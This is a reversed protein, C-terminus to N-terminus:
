NQQRVWAALDEPTKIRNTIIGDMLARTRVSELRDDIRTGNRQKALKVIYAPRDDFRVGDSAVQEESTWEPFHSWTIHVRWSHDGMVVLTTDEWDGSQELEQRVHALYLDCLVLNDLYSSRAPVFNHTHRNYIAGPHPIPMHLLMFDVAPDALLKDGAAMLDNYDKQHFATAIHVSNHERILGLRESYFSLNQLLPQETNWAISQEPFFGGPLNFHNTWFCRDLVDPIIRCYPNFWGAIATSYGGTLADQFVTNHPNLQVWKNTSVDHLELPWGAVPKYVKDLPLGTFLSPLVVDTFIGAPVAHTFVTSTAALRDFAPLDLGAYRHEYVQRYSLEDLVIWVIRHHHSADVGSIAAHHLPRPTNLDRAQWTYCFIEAWLFVGSIAALGLLIAALKRTYRFLTTARFRLAVVAMAVMPLLLVVLTIARPLPGYGNMVRLSKLLLWPLIVALISWVWANLMSYRRGLILLATMLIWVGIFNLLLPVLIASIPGLLHYISDHTPSALCALMTLTIITTAGFATSAPHELIKM